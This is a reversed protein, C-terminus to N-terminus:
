FKRWGAAHLRATEDGRRQGQSERVAAKLEPVKPARVPGASLERRAVRDINVTGDKQAYLKRGDALTFVQVRRGAMVAGGVHNVRSGDIVTGFRIRAALM